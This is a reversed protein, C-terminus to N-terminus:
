RRCGILTCFNSESFSRSLTAPVRNSGSALVVNVAGGPARWSGPTPELCLLTDGARVSEQTTFGGLRLGAKELALRAEGLSIM